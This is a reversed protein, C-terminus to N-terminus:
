VHLFPLLAFRTAPFLIVDLLFAGGLAVGLLIFLSFGLVTRRESRNGNKALFYLAVFLPAPDFGALGLPFVLSFYRALDM